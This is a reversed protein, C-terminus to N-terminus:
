REKREKKLNEIVQLSDILVQEGSQMNKFIVKGQAIEDEGIICVFRAPYKNAYKLQAKLSRQMYDMDGSFGEMRVSSLLNFAMRQADTGMSAFFIDIETSSHPLLNQTELALLVRELGIAFGIAPMKTGGCEEILGDYRGGGCVASQSGLPPYQIEFATKTYYDLGRVLRPNLTFEVNAVELNKIFGSFHNECEDCLCDSIQPAGQSM